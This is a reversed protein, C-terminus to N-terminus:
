TRLELNINQGEVPKLVVDFESVVSDIDGTVHYRRLIHALAVKMVMMGYIKGAFYLTHTNNGNQIYKTECM